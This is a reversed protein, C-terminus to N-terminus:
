KQMERVAQDVKITLDTAAVSEEFSIMSSKEGCMFKALEEFESRWGKDQAGLNVSEENVGYIRLRKFDDLEISSGQGFVELRERDMHKSGLATYVLLAVSGGGYNLTVAVNDKAISSSGNVETSAVYIEPDSRGLVFNFLDFFHCGEALIRGGGIEPDQTWSSKPIFGVNARFTIMFPGDMRSMRERIKLVLPSYRRNFGVFIPVNFEAQAKKIEELEDRTLCLPKEVFVTKGARAAQIVMSAHLNNPSSIVVLQTEPDNLAEEYDCTYNQFGYRRAIQVAHVPSSSVVWRLNYSKNKRLIPILTEKAFNGPGVLAVNITKSVLAKPRASFIAPRPEEILPKLTDYRLVLAVKSQGELSSYAEEAKEIPFEGGVLESVNVRRSELLGLFSGMNRNLTWRVHELPYDVGKEEYAPDYRGPGLSRSMVLDLEKQYYEKREIEMGVRGVVVVKAKSRAIQAALNIPESSSTAACIMVVDFGQGSTFHSLHALLAPDDSKITYDAGLEKVLALRDDRLDLSAVRCGSAHAIQAVLNGVLGAGIVAVYDGLQAGSRRFAHLAIAGITAFAADKMEVGEPVKTLLNRPISAIEAHVAKGEGACAVKDGVSLDTVNRGVHIVVGSSSYGVPFEPHRVASVYDAFGKIGENQLVQRSLKIAKSLKSSDKALDSASLPSTSDITWTETGTSIVSFATRVLVGGDSCVPRPVESVIVEGARAVVQKM